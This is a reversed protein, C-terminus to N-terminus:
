QTNRLPQNLNRLWNGLILLAPLYTYRGNDSIYGIITAILWISLVLILVKHETYNNKLLNYKSLVIFLLYIFLPSILHLQIIIKWPFFFLERFVEFISAPTVKKTLNEISSGLNTSTSEGAILVQTSFYLKNQIYTKLDAKITKLWAAQLEKYQYYDGPQILSLIPQLDSDVAALSTGYTNPKYFTCLGTISSKEKSLVMLGKEALRRTEFIPSLCFTTALDHIMVTQQPYASNIKYIKAATVELIYPSIVLFTCIVLNILARLKFKSYFIYILLPFFSVALWPRFAFTFIYILYASFFAFKNQGYKLLIGFVLLTFSIMFGDRSQASALNITLYCFFYLAVLNIKSVLNVGGAFLQRLGVCAITLQILILYQWWKFVTDPLSGYFISAVGSLFNDTNGSLNNMRSVNIDQGPGSDFNFIFTLLAIVLIYLNFVLNRNLKKISRM